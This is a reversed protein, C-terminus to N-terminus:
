FNSMTKSFSTTQFNINDFINKLSKKLSIGIMEPMSFQSLFDFQGIPM